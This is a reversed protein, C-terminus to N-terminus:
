IQQIDENYYDLMAQQIMNLDNDIYLEDFLGMPTRALNSENRQTQFKYTGDIVASHFIATVMGEICVKEELMKGVTKIKSFGLSDIENHMTFFTFLDHRAMMLAEVVGHISQAMEAFKDFGRETARHMFQNTLLYNFDDIVLTKIDPRNGMMQIARKVRAVDDTVLLNNEKDDWGTIRTYKNAAGKFPLTKGLVSILFTEKPNLTRMSTSKGSGSPGLILCTISM